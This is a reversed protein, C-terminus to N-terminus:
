KPPPCLTEQGAVLQWQGDRKAWVDTLRYTGSLDVTKYRAKEVLKLTVVAVRGFDQIKADSIEMSEFKLDGSRMANVDDMKHTVSGDAGTFVMDDAYLRELAKWDALLFADSLNHEAAMLETVTDKKGAVATLCAAALLLATLCLRTSKPIL